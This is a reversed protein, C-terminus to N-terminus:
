KFNMLATTDHSFRGYRMHSCHFGADSQKDVTQKSDM